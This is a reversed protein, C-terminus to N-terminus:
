GYPFIVWTTIITLNVNPTKLVYQCNDVLVSSYNGFSIGPRNTGDRYGDETPSSLASGFILTVAGREYRQSLRLKNKPPM